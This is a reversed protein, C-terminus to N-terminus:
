SVGAVEPKGSSPIAEVRKRFAMRPLATRPLGTPFGPCAVRPPVTRFGRVVARRLGTLFGRFM